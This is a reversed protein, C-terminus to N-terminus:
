GHDPNLERLRQQLQEAAKNRDALQDVTVLECRM